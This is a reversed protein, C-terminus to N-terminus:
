QGKVAQAVTSTPYTAKTSNDGIALKMVSKGKVGAYIFLAGALFAGLSLFM